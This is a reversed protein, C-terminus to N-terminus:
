YFTFINTFNSIFVFSVASSNILLSDGLSAMHIGDLIEDFINDSWSKILNEEVDCFDETCEDDGDGAVVFNDINKKSITCTIKFIVNFKFVALKLLQDVSNLSEIDNSGVSRHGIDPVALKGSMSELFLCLHKMDNVNARYQKCNQNFITDVIADAKQYKEPENDLREISCLILKSVIEAISEIQQVSM